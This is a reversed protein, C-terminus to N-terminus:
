EWICYQTMVTQLIALVPLIGHTKVWESVGPPQHSSGPDKLCYIQLHSPEKIRQISSGSNLIRTTWKGAVLGSRRWISCIWDACAAWADLQSFTSVLKVWLSPSDPPSIKIIPKYYLSWVKALQWLATIAQSLSNVKCKRQQFMKQGCLNDQSSLQQDVQAIM